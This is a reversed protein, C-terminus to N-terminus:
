YYSANIQRELERVSLRESISLRLYFEREKDTKLAFIIRNHSWSLERWLTALKPLDAYTEYFQKM